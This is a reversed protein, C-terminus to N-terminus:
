GVIQGRHLASSVVLAAKQGCHPEERVFMGLALGVGGVDLGGVSDFIVPLLGEICFLAGPCSMEVSSVIIIVGCVCIDVRAGM